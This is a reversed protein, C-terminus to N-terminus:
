FNGTEKLGQLVFKGYFQCRWWFSYLGLGTYEKVQTHRHKLLM